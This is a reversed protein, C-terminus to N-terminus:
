QMVCKDLQVFGAIEGAGNCVMTVNEGKSLTAATDTFTDDGEAAVSMFENSTALQVIAQDSIGSDISAVTGSVELLKGKYQKDAAVENNQYADFLENATVPITEEVVEEASQTDASSTSTETDDNGTFIAIVILVVLIILVWKLIKKM